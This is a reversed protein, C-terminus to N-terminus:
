YEVLRCESTIKVPSLDRRAILRLTAMAITTTTTIAARTAPYAARVSVLGGAVEEVVVVLEVNM